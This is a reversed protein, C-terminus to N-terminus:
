ECPQRNSVYKPRVISRDIFRCPGGRNKDRRCFHKRSPKLWPPPHSTFYGVHADFHVFTMNRPSVRRALLTLIVQWMVRRLLRFACNSPTKTKLSCQDLYEEALFISKHNMDQPIEGATRQRKKERARFRLLVVFLISRVAADKRTASWRQM